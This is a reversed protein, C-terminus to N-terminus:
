SIVCEDGMKRRKLQERRESETIKEPKKAQPKGDSVLETTAETLKKLLDSVDFDLTTKHEALV